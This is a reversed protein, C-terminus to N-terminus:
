MKQSLKRYTELLRAGVIATDFQQVYETQWAVVDTAANKDELFHRITRALMESDNPKVLQEPREDLVSRYGENDGAIVVPRNAAMAEILVIGFSEGGTSPYVAIDASKLYRPKDEESIFGTFEVCSALNNRQAYAQLEPLLEGKGCIVVRFHVNQGALIKAAELLTKCGKRAVLRGLFMITPTGDAYKEFATAKQFRSVDVVNPLILIDSLSFAKEAFGRAAASVAFVQDFRKLTSRLWLGLARTALRVLGSDPMIHFTGVIATSSPAAKIIRAALFPSYPMQVHLVDFKEQALLTRIARKNAPLPMSMRNGNFKVHMNRSLSHLNQIDTRNTEGVLYHVEHGQAHFWEGIALIYQQVGDPKDLSDDFVLGIKM